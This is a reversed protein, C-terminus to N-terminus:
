QYFRVFDIEMSDQEFNGPITGGLTGGMAINLILYHPNDFPVSATNAIEAILLNDVLLKISATNWVLSYLHFESTVDSIDLSSVDKTLGYSAPQGGGDAWHFTGYLIQKNEGNQEMIDIEGCEPWGVNGDVTGFYNGREGSNTGLTWIAPWTGKSAPLKARVDIRGYLLSFKSNLRASTFNKLSGEYTYNEKKATIKLTGESVYSNDIRATYHQKENNAWGGGFIPIYQHHWKETAPPGEYNFEDNWVLRYGEYAIVEESQDINSPDVMIEARTSFEIDDIYYHTESQNTLDYGLVMTITNYLGNRGELQPINFVLKEWGTGKTEIVLDGTTKKGPTDNPLEDELKLLVKHGPGPSYFLISIGEKGEPFILKEELIFYFGAWPQIGSPETINLVQTSENINTVEPNEAYKISLNESGIGGFRGWNGSSRNSPQLDKEFFTVEINEFTLANKNLNPTVTEAETDSTNTNNDIPNNLVVSNSEELTSSTEKNCGAGLILFIFVLGLCFFRNMVMYSFCNVAHL